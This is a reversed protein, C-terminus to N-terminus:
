KVKEKKIASIDKEDKLYYKNVISDTKLSCIYYKKTIYFGAPSKKQFFDFLCIYLGKPKSFLNMSFIM